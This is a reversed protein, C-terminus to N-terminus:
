DHRNAIQRPRFYAVYGFDEGGFRRLPLEALPM